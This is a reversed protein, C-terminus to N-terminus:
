ESPAPYGHDRLIAHACMRAYDGVDSQKGSYRKKYTSGITWSLKNILEKFVDSQVQPGVSAPAVGFPAIEQGLPGKPTRRTTYPALDKPPNPM